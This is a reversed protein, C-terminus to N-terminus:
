FAVGIDPHPDRGIAIDAVVQKRVTAIVFRASLPFACVLPAVLDPAIVDVVPVIGAKGSVSREDVAYQMMGAHDQVPFFLLPAAANVAFGVWGGDGLIRAAADLIADITACVRAQRPDKRMASAQGSHSYGLM